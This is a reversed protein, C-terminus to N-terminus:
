FVDKCVLARVRKSVGTDDDAHLSHATEPSSFSIKWALSMEYRVRSSIGTRLMGGAARDVCHWFELNLAGPLWGYAHQIFQGVRIELVDITSLFPLSSALRLTPSFLDLGVYRLRFRM